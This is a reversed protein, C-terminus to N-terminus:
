AQLSLARGHEEVVVARQRRDDVPGLVREDRLAHTVGNAVQGSTAGHAHDAPAVPPHDLLEHPYVVQDDGAAVAEVDPAGLATLDLALFAFAESPQEFSHLRAQALLQALDIAGEDLRLLGGYGGVVPEYRLILPWLHSPGDLLDEGFVGVLQLHGWALHDVLYLRVDVPVLPLGDQIQEAREVEVAVVHHRHVQAIVYGVLVGEFSQFRSADTDEDAM